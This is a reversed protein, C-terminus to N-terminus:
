ASPARDSSREGTRGSPSETCATALTLVLALLGFGSLFKKMASVERITTSGPPLAAISIGRLQRFVSGRDLTYAPVGSGHSWRWRLALDCSAQLNKRCEPAVGALRPPM